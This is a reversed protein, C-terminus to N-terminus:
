TRIRIRAQFFLWCRSFVMSRDRVNRQRTRAPAQAYEKSLNRYKDQDAITDADALLASVETHREEITQLKNIISQQM